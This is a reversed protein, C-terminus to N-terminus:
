ATILWTYADIYIGTSSAQELEEECAVKLLSTDYYRLQFAQISSDYDCQQLIDRLAPKM